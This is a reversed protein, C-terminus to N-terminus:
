FARHGELSIALASLVIQRLSRRMQTGCVFPQLAEGNTAFEVVIDDPFCRQSPGKPTIQSAQQSGTESMVDYQCFVRM